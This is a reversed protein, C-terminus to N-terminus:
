KVFLTKLRQKVTRRLCIFTRVIVFQYDRLGPRCMCIQFSKAASRFIILLRNVGYYISKAMALLSAGVYLPAGLCLGMSMSYLWDRKNQNDRSQGLTRVRRCITLTPYPLNDFPLSPHRLHTKALESRTYQVNM